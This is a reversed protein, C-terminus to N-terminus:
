NDDEDDSKLDMWKTILRTYSDPDPSEKVLEGYRELLNMNIAIKNSLKNNGLSASYQCFILEMRLTQVVIECFDKDNNMIEDALKVSLNKIKETENSDSDKEKDDVNDKGLLHGFMGFAIEERLEPERMSLGAIVTTLNVQNLWNKLYKFICINAIKYQEQFEKANDVITKEKKLFNLLGM